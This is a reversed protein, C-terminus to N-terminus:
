EEKKPMLKEIRVHYLNVKGKDTIIIPQGKEDTDFGMVTARKNKFKGTRIVDGIQIDTQEEKYRKM